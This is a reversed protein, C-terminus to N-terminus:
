KQTAYIVVQKLTMDHSQQWATTFADDSLSSVATARTKEFEAIETPSLPAGIKERLGHAAGLLV